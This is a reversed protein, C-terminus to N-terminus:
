GGGSIIGDIMVDDGTGVFGRASTNVLQSVTPQDLDYAEVLGTGTGDDQGRVVATYAGPALTAVIAAEKDDAPPIGTGEIEAQQSDKWNDNSLVTGDPEHLELIPDSLLGSLGASALSPGLARLLVKKPIDGSIIFGCILLEAGNLVQARTSLNLLTPTPVSAPDPPTENFLTGQAIGPGSQTLGYLTGNPHVVLENPLREM